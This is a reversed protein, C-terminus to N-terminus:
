EVDRPLSVRHEACPRDELQEVRSPKAASLQDRQVHGLHVEVAPHHPHNPLSALFPDHWEPLPGALRDLCVQGCTGSSSGTVARQEDIGIAASQCISADPRENSATNLLGRHGLSDAWVSQPVTEGCVKKLSARIETGNLFKQTVGAQRGCLAVRVHVRAVQQLYVALRM